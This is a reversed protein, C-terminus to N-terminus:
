PLCNHRGDHEGAQRKNILGITLAGRPISDVEALLAVRPFLDILDAALCAPLLLVRRGIERVLLVGVLRRRGGECRETAIQAAIWATYHIRAKAGYWDSGRTEAVALALTDSAGLTLLTVKKM